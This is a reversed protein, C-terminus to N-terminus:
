AARDKPRLINKGQFGKEFDPYWHRESAHRDVLERFEEPVALSWDQFKTRKLKDYRSLSYAFQQINDARHLTFCKHKRDYGFEQTTLMFEGDFAGMCVGFDFRDVNRKMLFEPAPEFRDRELGILCIPITEDHKEFKAVVSISPDSFGEYQEWKGVMVYACEARLFAAVEKVNLSWVFVDIDHIPKHLVTDRVAGGAIHAEPAIERIAKIIPTYEHVTPRGYLAPALTIM